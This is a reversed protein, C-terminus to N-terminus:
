VRESPIDSAPTEADPHGATAGPSLRSLSGDSRGQGHRGEGRSPSQGRAEGSATPRATASLAGLEADPRPQGPLWLLSHARLESAPCAPPLSSHVRHSRPDHYTAPQRACLGELPVDGKGGHAWAVAPQRHGGRPHVSGSVQACLGTRRVPTQRLRGLRAPGLPQPPAGPRRSKGVADLQSPVPTGGPSPCTQALCPVQRSLRPQTRPGASLLQRPREGLDDRGLFAWGCSDCLPYPSPADPETGLHAARDSLRAAGRSA